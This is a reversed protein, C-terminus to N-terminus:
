STFTHPSAWMETRCQQLHGYHEQWTWKRDINLAFPTLSACQAWFLIEVVAFINTRYFSVVNTTSATATSPHCSATTSSVPNFHFVDSIPFRLDCLWQCLAPVDQGRIKRTNPTESDCINTTQKWRSVCTDCSSASYVFRDEPSHHHQPSCIFVRFFVFNENLHNYDVDVIIM